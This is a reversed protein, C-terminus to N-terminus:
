RVSVRKDRRLANLALRVAALAGIGGHVALNFAGPRQRAEHKQYYIWMARHFERLMRPSQKRSAEGKLHTAVAAPLYRGAHGAERLRRCLDLDEGYMFFAEDFGDIARFASARVMLAAATGALLEQEADYDLHRLSYTNLRASGPFLRTVRSFYLAAGLPDPDGRLSAHDIGSSALRIKPGVFGLAPDAALRRALAAISGPAITCDPNLFLLFERESAAAALNAGAGFGLNRRSEVLGVAPYERRVMEASADASANDVVVVELGAASEGQLQTLCERLADVTNHSVVLVGVRRLVESSM